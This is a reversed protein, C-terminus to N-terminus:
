ASNSVIFGHRGLIGGIRGLGGPLFDANEDRFINRICRSKNDATEEINDNGDTIKNNLHNVVSESASEKRVPFFSDVGTGSYNQVLCFAEYEAEEGVESVMWNGVSRKGYSGAGGLGADGM